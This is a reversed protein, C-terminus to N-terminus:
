GNDNLRLQKKEKQFAFLTFLIIVGIGGAYKMWGQPDIFEFTFVLVVALLVYQAISSLDYPMPHHKRMLGYSIITMIVYAALTAWASGFYGIKPVLWINLGITVLAGSLAIGAGYITKDNLKYWFSLNFVVGYFIYACLLIPIVEAGVRFEEGILLLAIDDLCILAMSILLAVIFYYKMVDAQVQNSKKGKELSFIFPEAAFRYAQIGISLLMAVKYCAGYIGLQAAAEEKPLGSLSEFAARDFTENIIGALGLFLLPLAYPLLEKFLRPDFGYKLGKLVPLLLILKILSGALNAVFVYGIGFEPHYFSTVWDNGNEMAAPCYLFFFLNLLINVVISALNVSAFRIAKNQLRLRAFPITVFSDIAVIWGFLIIYEPNSAYGIADAMNGGTLYVLAIFLTSTSLLSIAATSFVVSQKSPDKERSAFRFFATEMGYTLFVLFFAVYAY